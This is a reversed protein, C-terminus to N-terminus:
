NQSSLFHNTKEQELETAIVAVSQQRNASTAPELDGPAITQRQREFRLDGIPDNADCDNVVQGCLDTVCNNPSLKPM